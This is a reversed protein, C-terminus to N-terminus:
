WFVSKFLKGLGQGAAHALAPVRGWEIAGRMAAKAIAFGELAGVPGEIASYAIAAEAAGGAIVAAM